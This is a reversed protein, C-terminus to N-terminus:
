ITLDNEEQLQVARRLLWSLAWALVGMAGCGAALLAIPIAWSGFSMGPLLAACPGLLCMGAAVGLLRAIRLLGNANSMCFSQNQGIRRCIGMYQLVSAFLLGGILWLYILGPWYLWGLAPYYALCSQALLPVYGAFVCLVGLAAIVGAALLFVSIRRHNMM